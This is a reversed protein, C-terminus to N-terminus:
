SVTEFNERIITTKSEETFCDSKRVNNITETVAKDVNQQKMQEVAQTDM